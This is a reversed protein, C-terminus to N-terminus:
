ELKSWSKQGLYIMMNADYKTDSITGTGHDLTPLYFESDGIIHNVVAITERDGITYYDPSIGLGEKTVNEEIKKDPFPKFTIQFKKFQVTEEAFKSYRWIYSNAGKTPQGIKTVKLGSESVKATLVESYLSTFSSILILVEKPNMEKIAELIPKVCSDISLQSYTLDLILYDKKSEKIKATTYISETNDTIGIVLYNKGESRYNGSITVDRDLTPTMYCQGVRYGNDHWIGTAFSYGSKDSPDVVWRGYFPCRFMTENEVYGKALLEEKTGYEDRFKIVRSSRTKLAYWDRAWNGNAYLVHEGNEYFRYIDCFSYICNDIPYGEKDIFFSELYGIMTEGDDISDLKDLSFGRAELVSLGAYKEFVKRLQQHAIKKNDTTSINKSSSQEVNTTTCSILFISFLITYIIRKM